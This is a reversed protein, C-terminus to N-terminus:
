GKVLRYSAIKEYKQVVMVVRAQLAPLDNEVAKWVFRSARNKAAVNLNHIFKQGAEYPTRRAVAILEGSRNRKVYATMGSGRKGQGISRGSRGAMDAISTAVSNVKIRLLTTNQSSGSSRTRFIISTSNAPKGVGWSVNTYGEMGSLPPSAPIASKIAQNPVVAIKKIERMFQTRLGPEVARLQKQLQRIGQVSLDKGVTLGRGKITNTNIIAM